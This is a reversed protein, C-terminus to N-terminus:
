GGRVSPGMRLEAAASAVLNRVSVGHAFRVEEHEPFEALIDRCRRLARAIAPAFKVAWSRVSEYSVDLGREALPEEVDRYSLPFRLYLWVAHQLVAPPLRHRRYSIIAM